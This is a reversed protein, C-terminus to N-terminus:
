IPNVDKVSTKIQVERIIQLKSHQMHKHTSPIHPNEGEHTHICQTQMHTPKHLDWALTSLAEQTIKGRVSAPRQQGWLGILSTPWEPPPTVPSSSHRTQCKCLNQPDLSSKSKTNKHKSWKVLTHVDYYSIKNHREATSHGM